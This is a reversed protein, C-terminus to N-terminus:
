TERLHERVRAKAGEVIALGIPHESLQEVGAIRLNAALEPPTLLTSLPVVVGGLRTIGLALLAWDFGYLGIKAAEQVVPWPFEEREDWEEAVPRIVADRDARQDVFIVPIHFLWNHRHGLIGRSTGVM